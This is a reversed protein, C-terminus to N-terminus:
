PDIMSSDIILRDRRQATIAPVAMAPIASAIAAMAAGSSRPAATEGITNM